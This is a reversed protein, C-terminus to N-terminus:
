EQPFEIREHQKRGNVFLAKKETCYDYMKRWNEDSCLTKCDGLIILLSKARTLM